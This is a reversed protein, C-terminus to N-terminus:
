RAARRSRAHDASGRRTMSTAPRSSSCTARLWTPRSREAVAAMFFDSLSPIVLGVAATSQRSALARAIQNPRFGLQRAAEDVREATAPAVGYEANLARSATKLSVGALAAVDALTPRTRPTM